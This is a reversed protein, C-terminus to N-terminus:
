EVTFGLSKIVRKKIVLDINYRGAPLLKGEPMSLTVSGFGEIKPIIMKHDLIHIGDTVYSWRVTVQTNIKAARWRIWCSVSSIGSPFIDTAKVPMLDEDVSEATRAEIISIDRAFLGCASLAFVVFAMITVSIAAKYLMKKVGINDTREKVCLAKLWIIFRDNYAYILSLM